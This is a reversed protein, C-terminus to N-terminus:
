ARQLRTTMAALLIHRLKDTSQRELYSETFDLRLGKFNALRSKVESKSLTAISSSIEEFASASSM